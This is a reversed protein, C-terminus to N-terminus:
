DAAVVTVTRPLLLVYRGPHKMRGARSEAEAGAGWFLDARVPGKIAGGTDQAVVLRRLAEDAAGDTPGPVLIDLWVPTGLAIFRRDVALSRGPTLPVGQAGVPGPGTLERFFVYSRNQDMVEAAQDPHAALWAKITRLSVEDKTLEGREVLVKGIALYPRGNAAAYGLRLRSGDPLAVQGSGQIQLFFADVPDDVWAVELGRGALTGQEIAQREHYPVLADGDVRGAVTRGQWDDDFLGLDVTVLDPPRGYLPVSFEASRTRAGRLLPEYYGTFLGEEGKGDSAAYPIFAGEFFARAAAGDGPPVTAAVTCAAQWDAATGAMGDRGIPRAPDQKAFWTCSELFAALASAQDDADWGALDDFGVRTLVIREEPPPAEPGKCAVVLALAALALGRAARNM